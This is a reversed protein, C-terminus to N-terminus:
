ISERRTKERLLKELKEQLGATLRSIIQDRIDYGDEADYKDGDGGFENDILYSDISGAMTMDDSNKLNYFLDNINLELKIKEEKLLKGEALYKKLDFNNM